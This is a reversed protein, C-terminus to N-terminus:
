NYNLDNNLLEIPKIYIGNYKEYINSSTELTTQM